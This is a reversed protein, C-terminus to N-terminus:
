LQIKGGGAAGGGPVGGMGPAGQGPVVISSQADRRMKELEALTAELATRAADPYKELAEEMTKADIEFSLPLTGGPTMLSAHGEYVTDREPDDSGDAKIPILRRLTGARRDTVSEERYLQTVDLRIDPLQQTEPM